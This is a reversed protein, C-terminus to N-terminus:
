AKKERVIPALRERDRAVIAKRKEPGAGRLDAQRQAHCAGCRWTATSGQNGRWGHARAIHRAVCLKFHHSWVGAGKPLPEDPRIVEECGCLECTVVWAPSWGAAM